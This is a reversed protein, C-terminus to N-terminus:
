EWHVKWFSRTACLTEQYTEIQMSISPEIFGHNHPNKPDRRFFLDSSLSSNEIMFVPKNGGGGRSYPILHAPLTDPNDPTVSLGGTQPHVTGQNDIPIDQFNGSTRVGLNGSNLGCLPKSDLDKKMARFLNAM